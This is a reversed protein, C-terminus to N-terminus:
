DYERRAAQKHMKEWKQLATPFDGGVGMNYYDLHAATVQQTATSGCDPCPCEHREAIRKIDEFIHGEPCQYVYLPM